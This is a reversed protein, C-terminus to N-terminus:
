IITLRYLLSNNLTSNTTSPPTETVYQLAGADWTTRTVGNFDTNYSTGLDAGKGIAGAGTELAIESQAEEDHYYLQSCAFMLNWNKALCAQAREM